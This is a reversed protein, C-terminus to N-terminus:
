KLVKAVCQLKTETTLNNGGGGLISRRRGSSKAKPDVAQKEKVSSLDWVNLTRDGSVTYLVDYHEDFYVEQVGPCSFQAAPSEGPFSVAASVGM